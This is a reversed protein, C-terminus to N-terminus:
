WVLQWLYSPNLIRSPPVFNGTVGILIDSLRPNASLRRAARDFLRPVTIVASIAREMIWKGGFTRRRARDYPALTRADLMDRELAPIAVSAALEAGRLAAFIGEGTFPDYFDAADGVLLLRDATARSTWRAFPGIARIPSELHAGRLRDRVSPFRAIFNWFWTERQAAPRGHALDVVVAVNTLDKGVPALGIYGGRGVHMEGVDEMKAVGSLHAVLAIRRRSGRRTLEYARAIRSNLGDAAVVLRAAFSTTGHETRASVRILNGEDELLREARVGELLRAGHRVATLALAHDFVERRLALGFDSFGRYGHAGRFHGEFAIGGPSVIRMGALRVPGAAEITRLVGLRDLIRLAEPSIYEACPKPRPFRSRELLVVSFGHDALFAAAASGAPGAGVVVVDFQKKM